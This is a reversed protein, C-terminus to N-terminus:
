KKILKLVRTGEDNSLHAFYIGPTLEDLDIEVGSGQKVKQGSVNFIEVRQLEKSFYVKGSTPNPYISINLYNYEETSLAKNEVRVIRTIQQAANGSADTANYYITYTGVEDLFESADIVVNSGDDSTAGLESYGVGLDIIQPNAGMLTIVPAVCDTNFSAHADIDTWNATSYSPDDVEICYLKPTNTAQFSKLGANNGSKVSLKELSPNNKVILGLLDPYNSLDLETLNNDAVNFEYLNVAIDSVILEEIGNGEIALRLLKTNTSLDLSTLFNYGTYITKLETNNYLDLESLNNNRVRLDVLAVFGEIGTLDSINMDEIDLSTITNINSKLVYDDLTDDYGLDILAQEFKDDPIYVYEQCSTNFNTSMDKNTWNANSFDPDDVLVCELLPNSRIDFNNTDTITLNNGNKVNLYNLKSCNSLWLAGLGTLNSIDLSSIENGSLNIYKISAPLINPIIRTINNNEGILTELKTNYTLDLRSILNAGFQLTLLETNKSIDLETIQNSRIKLVELAVFGEIGSLDQINKNRVDLTTLTSIDSTLVVGNVVGDSDINLDILAQEFNADPIATTQGYIILSFFLAFTSLLKKTM